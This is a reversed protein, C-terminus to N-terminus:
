QGYKEDYDNKYISYKQGLNEIAKNYQKLGGSIFKEYDPKLTKSIQGRTGLGQQQRFERDLVSQYENINYLIRNPAFYDSYQEDAPINQQRYFQSPTLLDPIDPIEPIEEVQGDEQIPIQSGSGSAQFFGAQQIDGAIEAKINEANQKGIEANLDAEEQLQEDISEQIVPFDLELQALSANPQKNINQVTSKPKYGLTNKAFDMLARQGQLIEQQTGVVNDITLGAIGSFRSINNMTPQISPVLAMSNEIQEVSSKDLKTQVNKLQKEFKEQIDVLPRIAQSVTGTDLISKNIPMGTNLISAPPPQQGRILRQELDKLQKELAEVRNERRIVIDKVKTRKVQKVRKVQKKIMKKKSKRRKDM